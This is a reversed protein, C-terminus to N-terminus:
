AVKMRLTIREKLKAIATMATVPLCRVFLKRLKYMPPSIDPILTDTAIRANKIRSSLSTFAAPSAYLLTNFRYWPEIETINSIRPRLFDIPLYGHEAFLTRWYEYNQENIHGDGGQGKPAASFLVLDGHSVLSAVFGAASASPLHEAVELSQVLDYRRGLDFTLSLDHAIFDQLPFLLRSRDVYDGDLGSFDNIGFEKWVSLWAGQGCGVDLVNTVKLESLLEPLLKRASRLSGANVYNFFTEDYSTM